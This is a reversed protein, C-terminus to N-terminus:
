PLSALASEIKLELDPSCNSAELSEAMDGLLMRLTGRGQYDAEPKRRALAILGDIRGGAQQLEATPPGRRGALYLSVQRCYSGLARQASRIEAQEASSLRQPEAKGDGGCAGLALALFALLLVVMRGVSAIKAKGDNM